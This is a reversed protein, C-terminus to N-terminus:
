DLIVLGCVSCAPFLHGVRSLMPVRSFALTHIPARSFQDEDSTAM